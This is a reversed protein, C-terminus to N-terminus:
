APREDDGGRGLTDITGAGRSFAGLRDLVLALAVPAATEVRLITTGMGEVRYGEERLKDVEEGTLGGESGVVVWTEAPGAPPALSFGHAAEEWFVIRLSGPPARRAVELLPAPRALIPTDARGAQRSAERAIRELREMKGGIREAEVKPVSRQSTALHIATVGLETAMRIMGDLKAGKPLVQVLVLAPRGVAVSTRPGTRCRVHSEGLALIEAEAEGGRGDFLRVSEGERLRLVRVHRVADEDLTVEGGEAPLEACFLRRATM